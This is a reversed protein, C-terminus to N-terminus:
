ASGAKSLSAEIHDAEQKGIIVSNPLFRMGAYGTAVTVVGGLITTLLGSWDFGPKPTNTIEGSVQKAQDSSIYGKETASKLGDAVRSESYGGAPSSACSLFLFTLLGCALVYIITNKM